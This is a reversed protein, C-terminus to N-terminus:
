SGNLGLNNLFERPETIGPLFYEPASHNKKKKTNQPTFRMSLPYNYYNSLIFEKYDRSLCNEPGLEVKPSIEMPFPSSPLFCGWVKTDLPLKIRRM